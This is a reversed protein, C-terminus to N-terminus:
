KKSSSLLERFKKEEMLRGSGKHTGITDESNYGMLHKMHTMDENILKNDEVSLAIAEGETVTGEWRVKLTKNGDTMEFVKNDEKLTEPVKNLAENISNFEKKFKVRKM